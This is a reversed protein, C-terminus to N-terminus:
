RGSAGVMGAVITLLILVIGSPIVVADSEVEPMLPRCSRPMHCAEPSGLFDRDSPLQAQTVNPVLPRYQCLSLSPDHALIMVRLRRRRAVFRGPQRRAPEDQEEPVSM